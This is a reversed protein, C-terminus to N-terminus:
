GRVTATRLERLVEERVFRPLQERAKKMVGFGEGSNFIGKRQLTKAIAWAISLAEDATAKTFKARGSKGVTQRGGIGKMRVWEALAQIMARGIKVNQGRVGDEIFPAHPADNFFRAGGETKEARWAARWVGRATPVPTLSPIVEAQIYGVARVAAAFLGREAAARNTRALASIFRGAESLRYVTM